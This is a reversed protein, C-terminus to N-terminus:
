AARALNEAPPLTITVMHETAHHGDFHAERQFHPKETLPAGLSRAFSRFLAWSAANDRTITTKLHDADACADRDILEQLMRRGLGLGRAKPSVAVQWIFLESRDPIMHGSIWGVIQGDMEAVVCTDRFHDAQVLNCYMSNEDLPKCTKVLAWIDAGDTANPKRLRPQRTRTPVSDKPM